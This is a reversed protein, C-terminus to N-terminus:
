FKSNILLYVEITHDLCVCLWLSDLCNASDVILRLNLSSVSLHSLMEVVGSNNSPLLGVEPEFHFTFM